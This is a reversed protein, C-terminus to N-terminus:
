TWVMASCCPEQQSQESTRDRAILRWPEGPEPNFSITPEGPNTDCLSNWDRSVQIEVNDGHGVDLMVGWKVAGHIEQQILKNAPIRGHRAEDWSALETFLSHRLRLAANLTGQGTVSERQGASPQLSLEPAEDALIRLCWKCIHGAPVRIRKGGMTIADVIIQGPECLGASARKLRCLKCDLDSWTRRLPGAAHAM